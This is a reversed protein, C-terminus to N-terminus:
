EAKKVRRSTKKPAEDSLQAKMTELEDQMNEMESLKDQLSLVEEELEAIRNQNDLFAKQLTPIDKPVAQKVLQGDLTYVNYGMDYYKVVENKSVRLSVNGRKVKYELEEM